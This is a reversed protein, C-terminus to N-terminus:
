RDIKYQKMDLISTDIMLEIGWGYDHRLASITGMHAVKARYTVLPCIHNRFLHPVTYRLNEPTSRILKYSPDIIFLQYIFFVLLMLIYTHPYNEAHDM